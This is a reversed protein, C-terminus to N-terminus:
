GVIDLERQKFEAGLVSAIQQCAAIDVGELGNIASLQVDDILQCCRSTFAKMAAYSGTLAPACHQIYTTEDQANLSISVKDICGALEPVIDRKNFLSGLGDTNLRVTTGQQKLWRAVELLVKLRTTPEGYGCFIVERYREPSQISAIIEQASPLRNLQLDHGQVQKSANHKPCFHCTLTCRDTLNIYLQDRIEYIITQEAIPPQKQPLTNPRPKM